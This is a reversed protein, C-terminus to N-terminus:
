RPSGGLSVADNPECEANASARPDLVKTVDTPPCIILLPVSM